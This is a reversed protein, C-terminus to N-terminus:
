LIAVACSELRWCMATMFLATRVNARAGRLLRKVRLTGRDRELAGVAVLAAIQKHSLTGIPGAREAAPRVQGAM